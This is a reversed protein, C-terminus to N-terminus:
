EVLELGDGTKTGGSVDPYVDWRRQKTVPIGERASTIDEPKLEAYVISEEGGEAKGLVRGMPDVVMSEGWAQYGDANRAPSCMAVYLQNDNARARALLEWHLPGTTMNFAGPAIVAFAGQRAYVTSLEPFRVDYCIQIGVRGYPPLDILTPTHGPSLVSSETFTIKGPIDIDFLHIKRHVGLLTGSPSFTLSTNYLYEKGEAAASERAKVSQPESPNSTQIDGSPPNSSREPISGAVLYAGADVAMKRLATFTPYKEEIEQQEEGARQRELRSPIREAYKDFYDCGYPSNFCEPLVVLNAGNRSAELVKAHARALNAPKDSGSRLQILAIKLPTSLPSPTTTSM